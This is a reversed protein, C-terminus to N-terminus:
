QFELTRHTSLNCLVRPTDIEGACTSERRPMVRIAAM